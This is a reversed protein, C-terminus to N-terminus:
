RGRLENADGAAGKRQGAARAGFDRSDKHKLRARPTLVHDFIVYDRHSFSLRVTTNLQQGDGM